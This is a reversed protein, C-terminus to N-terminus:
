PRKTILLPGRLWLRTGDPFVQTRDPNTPWPAALCVEVTWRGVQLVASYRSVFLTM